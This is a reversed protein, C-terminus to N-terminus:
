THQVYKPFHSFTEVDPAPGPMNTLPHVFTQYQPPVESQTTAEGEGQASVLSTALLIFLSVM